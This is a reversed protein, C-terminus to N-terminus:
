LIKRKKGKQITELSRLSLGGGAAAEKVALNIRDTEGAETSCECCVVELQSVMYLQSNCANLSSLRKFFKLGAM